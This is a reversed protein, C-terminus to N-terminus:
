PAPHTSNPLCPSPGQNCATSLIVAFRQSCAREKHAPAQPSAPCMLCSWTV